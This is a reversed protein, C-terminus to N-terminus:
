QPAANELAARRLQAARVLVPPPALEEPIDMLGWRHLLDGARRGSTLAVVPVALVM